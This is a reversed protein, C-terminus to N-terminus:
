LSSIGLAKKDKPFSPRSVQIKFKSRIQTEEKNRMFNTEYQDLQDEEEANSITPFKMELISTTIAYHEEKTRLLIEFCSEEKVLPFSGLYRKQLEYIISFM